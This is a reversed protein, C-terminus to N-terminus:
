EISMEKHSRLEWLFYLLWGWSESHESNQFRAWLNHPRKRIQSLHLLTICYALLLLKNSQYFCTNSYFNIQLKGRILQVFKPFEPWPPSSHTTWCFSIPGALINGRRLLEDAKFSFWKLKVSTFNWVGTAEFSTVHFVMQLM